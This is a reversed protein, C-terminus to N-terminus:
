VAARLLAPLGMSAQSPQQKLEITNKVSAKRDAPKVAGSEASAGGTPQTTADAQNTPSSEKHGSPATQVIVPGGGRMGENGRTVIKDGAKLGEVDVAVHDLVESLVRVPRMDSFAGDPSVHVVFLYVAPGRTVVADKPVVLQNGAPGSPVSGRAFMGSRILGDANPIDVDVPFTRAQPDADPVVRAIRGSFDRHLAEISVLVEAGVENFAICSEPVNLRVRAVSLDIMEVVGGGQTLWSGVETLKSVLVGEFPARVVTRELADELRDLSAQFSAISAQMQAVRARAGVLNAAADVREKETSRDATSLRQMREDEFTAKTLEARAAELAAEAEALRAAAEDRSFRHQTDRLRCLIDGKAVRDGHEVPMDVVFGLVEAAVTTRRQPMVSGVLRITPSLKKEVVTAVEVRTPGWQANAPLATLLVMCLPVASCRFRISQTM